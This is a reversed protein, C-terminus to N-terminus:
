VADAPASSADSPRVVWVGDGRRQVKGRRKFARLVDDIPKGPVGFHRALEGRTSGGTAVIREYVRVTFPTDDVAVPSAVLAAAPPPELVPGPPLPGAAGSPADRAVRGVDAPHPDGDSAGPALDPSSAVSPSASAPASRFYYKGRKVLAGSKRLRALASDVTNENMGRPRFDRQFTARTKGTSGPLEDLIQDTLPPPDESVDSLLPSGTELHEQLVSVAATLRDHERAVDALQRQLDDRRNVVAEIQGRVSSLCTALEGM